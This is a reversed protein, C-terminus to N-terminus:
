GRGPGLTHTEKPGRRCLIVRCVEGRRPDATAIYLYRIYLWLSIYLYINVFTLYSVGSEPDSRIGLNVTGAHPGRRDRRPGNRTQQAPETNGPRAIYM